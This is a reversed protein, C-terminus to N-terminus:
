NVGWMRELESAVQWAGFGFHLSRGGAAGTADRQHQEQQQSGEARGGGLLVDVDVAEGHVGLDRGSKGVCDDGAPHDVPGIERLLSGEM